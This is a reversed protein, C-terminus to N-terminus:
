DDQFNSLTDTFQKDKSLNSATRRFKAMDTSKFATNRNFKPSWDEISLSKVNM